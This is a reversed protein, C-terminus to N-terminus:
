LRGGGAKADLYAAAARSATRARVTLANVAAHVEVPAPGPRPVHAWLGSQHTTREWLPRIRHAAVRTVTRAPGHWDVHVYRRGNDDTAALVTGARERGRTLDVVIAGLPPWPAAAAPTQDPPEALIM